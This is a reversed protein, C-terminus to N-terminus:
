RSYQSYMRSYVRTSTKIMLEEVSLIDEVNDVFVFFILFDILLLLACLPEDNIPHQSDPLVAHFVLAQFLLMPMVILYAMCHTTILPLDCEVCTLYVIILCMYVTILLILTCLIIYLVFMLLNPVWLGLLMCFVMFLIVELATLLDDSFSAFYADLSCALGLSLLAAISSCTIWNIPYKRRFCRLNMYVNFLVLGLIVFILTLSCYVKENRIRFAKVICIILLTMLIYALSTGFVKLYFIWKQNLEM